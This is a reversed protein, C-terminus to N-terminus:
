VTSPVAKQILCNSESSTIQASAQRFVAMLMYTVVEQESAM